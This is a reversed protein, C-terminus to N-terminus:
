QKTVREATFTYGKATKALAGDVRVVDKVVPAAGGWIFPIQKTTKDTLCDTACTSCQSSDILTFGRGKTATAVRGVVAVKGVFTDPKAALQNVSLSKDALPQQASWVPTSAVAIIATAVFFLRIM